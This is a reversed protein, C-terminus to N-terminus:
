HVVRHQQNAVSRLARRALAARSRIRDRRVEGVADAIGLDDQGDLTPLRVADVLGLERAQHLAGAQTAACQAVLLSM